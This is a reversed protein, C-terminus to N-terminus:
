FWGNMSGTCLISTKLYNVFNVLFFKRQLRKKLFSCNQPGAVNNFFVGTCRHKGTFNTFKKLVITKFFM